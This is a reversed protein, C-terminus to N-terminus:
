ERPRLEASALRSDLEMGQDIQAAIDGTKDVNGVPFHVIDFGEIMKGHLCAGEVDHIAAIDIEGPEETKLRAHSEEDCPGFPLHFEARL